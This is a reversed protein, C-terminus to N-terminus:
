DDGGVVAEIDPEKVRATRILVRVTASASRNTLRALEDLRQVDAPTVRVGLLCTCAERRKAM